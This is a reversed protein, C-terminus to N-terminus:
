LRQHHDGTQDDKSTTRRAPPSAPRTPISHNQVPNAPHGGTPRRGPSLSLSMPRDPAPIGDRIGGGSPDPSRAWPLFGHLVHLESQLEAVPPGSRRGVGRLLHSRGLAEPEVRHPRGLGVPGVGEGGQGPQAGLGGLEPQARGEALERTPGRRGHAHGGDGEVVERATAEHQSEAHGAGLDHLAPVSLGEGLGQGPGALVHVDHALHHGTLAHDGTVAGVIREGVRAAGPQALRQLRDHVRQSRLDGIMRPASPGFFTARAASIASPQNGM